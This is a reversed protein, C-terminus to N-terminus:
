QGRMRRVELRVLRIEPKRASDRDVVETIYGLKRLLRRAEQLEVRTMWALCQMDMTDSTEITDSLRRKAASKYLTYVDFANEGTDGYEMLRHHEVPHIDLEKLICAQGGPTTSIKDMKVGLFGIGRQRPM